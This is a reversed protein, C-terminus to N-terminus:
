ENVPRYLVVVPTEIRSSDFLGPRGPVKWQSDLRDPDTKGANVLVLQTRDIIVTGEPLASVDALNRLVKGNLAGELIALREAADYCASMWHEVGVDFRNGPTDVWELFDELPPTDDREPDFDIM